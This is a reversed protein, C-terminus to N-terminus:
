APPGAKRAADVRRAMARRALKLFAQAWDPRQGGRARRRYVYTLRDSVHKLRTIESLKLTLSVSDLPTDEDYAGVALVLDRRMLSGAHNATFEMLDIDPRHARGRIWPPRVYRGRAGTELMLYSGYCYGVAPKRDLVAALASVSGQLLWDDADCPMVYEGRAERLLRNRVAGVPLGERDRLLRVKPHSKFACLADWTSDASGNDCAVLELDRFDQGLVCHIQETVFPAANRAPILVSVRPRNM